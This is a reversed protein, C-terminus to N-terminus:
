SRQRVFVPSGAIDHLTAQTINREDTKACYRSAVSLRASPRVSVRRCRIGCLKAYSLM